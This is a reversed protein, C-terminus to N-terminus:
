DGEMQRGGQAQPNTNAQSPPYDCQAIDRKVKEAALDRLAQQARAQIQCGLLPGGHHNCDLGRPRTPAPGDIAACAQPDTSTDPHTEANHPRLVSVALKITPDALPTELFGQDAKNLIVEQRKKGKGIVGPRQATSYIASKIARMTVKEAADIDQPDVHHERFGEASEEASEQTLEEALEQAAEETVPEPVAEANEAAMIIEEALSEPVAKVILELTDDTPLQLEVAGKNVKVQVRATRKWDEVNVARETYVASVDRGAQALALVEVTVHHLVRNWQM